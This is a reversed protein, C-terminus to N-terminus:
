TPTLISIKHCFLLIRHQLALTPVTKLPANPLFLDVDTIKNLAVIRRIVSVLREERRRRVRGIAQPRPHLFQLLLLTGLAAHQIHLRLNDGIQRRVARAVDIRRHLIELLHDAQLRVLRELLCEHGVAADAHRLLRELIVAVLHARLQMLDKRLIMLSVIRRHEIRIRVLDARRPAAVDDRAQRIGVPAPPDHAVVAAHREVADIMQDRELLFVEQIVAVAHHRVIDDLQALLERLLDTRKLAHLRHRFDVAVIDGRGCSIRALRHLPEIKAVERRDLRLVARRHADSADRGEEIDVDLAIEFAAHERLRLRLLQDVVDHQFEAHHFERANRGVILQERAIRDPRCELHRADAHVAAVHHRLVVEAEEVRQLVHSRRGLRVERHEIRRTQRLRELVICCADRDARARDLVLVVIHHLGLPAVVVRDAAAHRCRLRALLHLEETRTRIQCLAQEIRDVAAHVFLAAQLDARGITRDTCLIEFVVIDDDFVLAHHVPERMDIDASQVDDLVHMVTVVVLRRLHREDIRVHPSGKCCADRAERMHDVRQGRDFIRLHLRDVVVANNHVVLDLAVERAVAVVIVARIFDSLPHELGEERLDLRAVGIAVCLRRGRNERDCRIDDIALVRACHRVAARRPHRECRTCIGAVARLAAAQEGRQVRHCLQRVVPREVADRVRLAHIGRREPVIFILAHLIEHARHVAIEILPRVMQVHVHEAALHELVDHLM